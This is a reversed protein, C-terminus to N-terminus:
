WPVYRRGMGPRYRFRVGRRRLQNKIKETEWTVPGVITKAILDFRTKGYKLVHGGDASELLLDTEYAIKEIFNRWQVERTFRRPYVADRIVKAPVGGAICGRPLDHNVVSGAAVVVDDEIRVGPLVTAMPLWVRNGISVEEFACPFGETEPLYAGHTYIRSGRGIGVEDGLEVRRAINIHTGEGMHLFDGAVLTAHSGDSSGGGISAGNAIWCERGLIVHKGRIVVNEGIVTRDGVELKSVLMRVSEAMKVGEGLRMDVAVM